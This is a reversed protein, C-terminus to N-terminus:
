ETFELSVIEGTIDTQCYGFSSMVLNEGRIKLNLNGLSLVIYEKSYDVVSKCDSVIMRRNGFLEIGASKSEELMNKISVLGM